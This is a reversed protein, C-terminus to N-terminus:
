SLSIIMCLASQCFHVNCYINLYKTQNFETHDWRTIWFRNIHKFCCLQLPLKRFHLQLFSCLFHSLARGTSFLCHKTNRGNCMFFFFFYEKPLPEWVATLDRQLLVVHSSVGVFYCSCNLGANCQVWIVLLRYFCGKLPVHTLFSIM